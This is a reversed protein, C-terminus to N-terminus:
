YQEEYIQGDDFHGRIKHVEIENAHSITCYSFLAM